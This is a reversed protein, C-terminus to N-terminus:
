HDAPPATGLLEFEQYLGVIVEGKLERMGLMRVGGAEEAQIIIGPTRSGKDDVHFAYQPVPIRVPQGGAAFAANGAQVDAETAARGAIFGTKPLPPWAVNPPKTGGACALLLAALAM